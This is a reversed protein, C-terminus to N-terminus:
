PGLRAKLPVPPPDAVAAVLGNKLRTPDPVDSQKEPQGAPKTLVVGPRNPERPRLTKWPGPSMMKSKVIIFRVLIPSFLTMSNRDSNKLIKLWAFKPLGFPFIPLTFKPRM